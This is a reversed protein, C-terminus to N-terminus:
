AGSGPPRLGLVLDTPYLEGGKLSILTEGNLTRVEKIEVFVEPVMEDIQEGDNYAVVGFSYEGNPFADSDADKGDWFYSEDSVPINIRQVEVGLDNWVVLETKDAIVPPNPVIEIPEGDFQRPIAMRAEMGVWSAMEGLQSATFKSGLAELLDNTKVQQEVSSFTALQTAFDQSDLPNLPDQNKMQATLMVLFTEFDSSLETTANTSSPVTAPSSPQTASIDM